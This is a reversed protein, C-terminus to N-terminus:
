RRCRPATATAWPRRAGSRRIPWAPCGSRTGRSPRSASRRTTPRSWGTAPRLDEFIARDAPRKLDLAISEGQRLRDGRLLPVKRDRVARLRADGAGPREVKIARAGLQALSMACFPGALVRSLDLVTVGQM